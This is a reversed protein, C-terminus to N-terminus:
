KINKNDVGFNVTVPQLTILFSVNCQLPTPFIGVQLFIPTKNVFQLHSIPVKIRQHSWLFEELKVENLSKEDYEKRYFGM